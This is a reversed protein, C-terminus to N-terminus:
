ALEYLSIKIIRWYSWRMKIMKHKPIKYKYKPKSEPKLYWRATKRDIGYKKAIASISKEIYYDNKINMWLDYKADEKNISIYGIIYSPRGNKLFIISSKILIIQLDLHQM